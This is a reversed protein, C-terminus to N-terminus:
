SPSQTCQCCARRLFPWSCHHCFTLNYCTQRRVHDRYFILSSHVSHSSSQPRLRTKGSSLTPRITAGNLQKSDFCHVDPCNTYNFEFRLSQANQRQDNCYQGRESSWSAFASSNAWDFTFTAWDFISFHLLLRRPRQMCAACSTPRM